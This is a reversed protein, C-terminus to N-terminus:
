RTAARARARERAARELSLNHSVFALREAREETLAHRTSTHVRGFTSWVRESAASSAPASLARAALHSLIACRESFHDLWWDASSMGTSLKPDVAAWVAKDDFPARRAFYAMLHAHAVAQDAENVGAIETWFTTIHRLCQQPSVLRNDAHRPDVLYAFLFLSMNGRSWRDKISQNFSQFFPIGLERIAASTVLRGKGREYEHHERIMRELIEQDSTTAAGVAPEVDTSEDVTQNPVYLKSIVELSRQLTNYLPYVDSLGRDDSEIVRIASELPSLVFVIVPLLEWFREDSMAELVSEPIAMARNNQLHRIAGRIAEEHRNILRLCQIHSAWRTRAPQAVSGKREHLAHSAALSENFYSTLKVATGVIGALPHLVSLDNLLLQFNHAACGVTWVKYPSTSGYSLVPQNPMCSVILGAARELAAKMVAANDSVIVSFRVSPFTKAVRCIDQSVHNADQREDGTPKPEIFYPNPVCFIYNVQHEHRTNSWGDTVITVYMAKQVAMDIQTRIFSYEADLLTLSVTDASPVEYSPRLSRMLDHFEPSDVTASIPSESAFIFRALARDISM